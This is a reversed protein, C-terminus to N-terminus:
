IAGLLRALAKEWRLEWRYASRLKRVAGTEGAKLLGLAFGYNEAAQARRAAIKLIKRKFEIM